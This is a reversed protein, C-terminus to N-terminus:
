RSSPPPQRRGQEGGRRREARARLPQRAGRGCSSSRAHASARTPFNVVRLFSTDDNPERDPAPLGARAVEAREFFRLGGYVRYPIGANFLQKGARPEARQQPLAARDGSAARARPWSAAEVLVMPRPSIARAGRFVRVPEGAPRHAPEAWASENHAILENAADLINGYSRYNELKIVQEVRFEREFASMNGVRAGRFAYISQDDDGM